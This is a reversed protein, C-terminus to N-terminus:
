DAQIDLRKILPGWKTRERSLFDTFDQPRGGEIAAGESALRGAYGPDRLARNAADNIAAVLPAPTGAPALLGYALSVEFGPLSEAVTPLEPWSPLRKAATVALGRVRGGRALSRAQPVSDFYMQIENAILATTTQANGRFPVHTLDLGARDELLEGALHQTTGIGGSGFNLTGPKAKAAAVLDALTRYPSNEPVLLVLPFDALKILPIFDREPDYPLKKTMFQSIALIPHTAFFITYGDPKARTVASAAVAGGAGSINEINVPQKWVAALREGILRAQTDSGGGPPFPVIMRVPQAPYNAASAQAWVSPAACAAASVIFERRGLSLTM